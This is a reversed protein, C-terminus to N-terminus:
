VSPTNGPPTPPGPQLSTVSSTASYSCDPVVVVPGADVTASLNQNIAEVTQPQVRSLTVHDCGIGHIPPILTIRTISPLEVPVAAIAAAIQASIGELSDDEHGPLV